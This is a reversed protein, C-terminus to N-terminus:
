NPESDISRSDSQTSDSAKGNSQARDTSMSDSHASDLLKHQRIPREVSPNVTEIPDKVSSIKVSRTCTMIANRLINHCIDAPNDTTTVREVRTSSISSSDKTCTEFM